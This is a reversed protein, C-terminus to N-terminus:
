VEELFFVLYFTSKDRIVDSKESLRNKIMDILYCRRNLRFKAALITHGIRTFHRMAFDLHASVSKQRGVLFTCWLENQRPKMSAPM